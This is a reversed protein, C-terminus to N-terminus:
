CCGHACEEDRETEWTEGHQDRHTDGEHPGLTCRRVQELAREVKPRESPLIPPGGLRAYRMLVMAAGVPVLAAPCEPPKVPRDPHSDCGGCWLGPTLGVLHVCVGESLAPDVLRGDRWEGQLSM